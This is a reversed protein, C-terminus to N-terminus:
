RELPLTPTIAVAAHGKASGKPKAKKPKDADIQEVSAQAEGRHPFVCADGALCRGEKYFICDPVHWERCSKGKPCNGRLWAECRPRSLEGSPSKGRAENKSVLPVYKGQVIKGATPSKTRTRQPRDSRNQQSSLPVRETANGEGKKGKTAPTYTAKWPCNNGRDCRGYKAWAICEGKKLKPEESRGRLSKQSGTPRSVTGAYRSTSLTQDDLKQQRREELHNVVYSRLAPYSKEAGKHAVDMKYLSYVQSFHQCKQVQKEFLNELIDSSPEKRM